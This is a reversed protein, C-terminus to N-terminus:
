WGKFYLTEYYYRCLEDRFKVILVFEFLDNKDNERELFLKFRYVVTDDSACVIEIEGFCVEANGIFNRMSDCLMFHEDNPHDEDGISNEFPEDYYEVDKTFLKAYGNFDKNVLALEYNNIWREAREM